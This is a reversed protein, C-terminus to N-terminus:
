AAALEACRRLAAVASEVWEASTQNVQDRYIRVLAEDGHLAPPPAVALMQDHTAAYVVGVLATAVVQETADDPPLQALPALMDAIAQGRREFWPKLENTLWTDYAAQADPAAGLAPAALLAHGLELARALDPSAPKQGPLAPFAARDQSGG